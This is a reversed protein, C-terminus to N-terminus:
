RSLHFILTMSNANLAQISHNSTSRQLINRAQRHEFDFLKRLSVQILFGCTRLLSLLKKPNERLCEGNM